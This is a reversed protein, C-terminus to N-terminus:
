PGPYKPWLFVADEFRSLNCDLGIIHTGTKHQREYRRHWHGHVHLLPHHKRILADVRRMSLECARQYDPSGKASFGPPYDPADHTVLVHIPGAASHARDFEEDTIVEEPWWSRGETRLARDISPAGGLFLFRTGDGDEHVSGRPQYIVNKAITVGHEHVPGILKRLSPHEDHNGDIFRMLVGDGVLM